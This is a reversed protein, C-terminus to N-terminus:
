DKVPVFEICDFRNTGLNVATFRVKHTTITYFTVTGLLLHQLASVQVGNYPYTTQMNVIGGLDAGDLSPQVNQAVGSNRAWNFLVNYKGKFLAPTTLEVYYPQQMSFSIALAGSLLPSYSIISVSMDAPSWKLWPIAVQEQETRMGLAGLCTPFYSCDKIFPVMVYLPAPNYVDFIKNVAHIVGNKALVNNYESLIKTKVERVATKGDAGVYSITRRNLAVDPTISFVLFNNLSLSELYEDKFDSIFKNSAIIHYRIFINLSDDLSTYDKNRSYKTALEDFSNFGNKRFISDPEAFMTYRMKTSVGNVITETQNLLSKLDTVELARTIISFSANKKLLEYITNPPPFLVGDIGHCVGNTGLMDYKIVNTTTNLTAKNLGQSLDMAVYEKLATMSPLSGNIFTSSPYFAAYLHYLLINRLESKDIASISSLGRSKLYTGFADNTPAFLTYTGYSNLMTSLNSLDLAEVLISYQKDNKLIQLISTSQKVPWLQLENKCSNLFFLTVFVCFLIGIKRKIWDLGSPNEPLWPTSLNYKISRM